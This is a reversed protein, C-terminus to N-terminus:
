RFILCIIIVLFFLNLMVSLFLYGMLQKIRFLYSQNEKVQRIFANIHVVEPLQPDNM